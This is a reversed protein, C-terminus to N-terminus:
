GRDHQGVSWLPNIVYACADSLRRLMGLTALRRELREANAQFARKDLDDKGLVREAEREGFVFGYRNFLTALFQGFEMRQQVNALVLAKILGDNPAYRLRNTGRRSVLGAGGGYTRHINGAHQRHRNSANTRLDGLLRAPDEPGDYDEPHAARPWRVKDQLITKCLSFANSQSAADLWEPSEAIGSILSEVARRSLQANDLYSMTSLERVLTKRPAVLECIFHPRTTACQDAAIALQYLAVHLASLTVLHPYADFGPLQLRCVALWDEGLRDFASHRRYPLYSAERLSRDQDGEPQLVGVLTNWPNDGALFRDLCPRLANACDARCLMMYLLEGTRGFNIYERSPQTSGKVTLDEYLANPGFPFLFRSTWRRNSDSEVASSRLLALLLELQHFSRFHSRLYTFDPPSVGQATEHMEQLWESWASNNDALRAATRSMSENNFLLNRLGMRKNPRFQLPYLQGREDLLMGDRRKAEAVSLFELFLLWPSQTDWLRHGWIQEDVWMENQLHDAPRPPPVRLAQDIM